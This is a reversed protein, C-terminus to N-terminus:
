FEIARFCYVIFATLAFQGLIFKQWIKRQIFSHIIRWLIKNFIRLVCFCKLRIYFKREKNLPKKSLRVAYM